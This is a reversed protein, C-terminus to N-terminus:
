EFKINLVKIAENIPIAFGLGEVDEGIIKRVIIGVVEGKLNILAGGSNGKNISVDTQIFNQEEFVRKGSIIGKTISQGLNIDRPTGIAIVETGVTNKNKDKNIAFPCFGDGVIKLLAVDRKEDYAVVKVPLKLDGSFIAEIEDADNIVHYNTLAYGDSSIIFGSGHGYETKVTISSKISNKIMEGYNEISRTKIKTLLYGEKDTFNDSDNDKAINKFGENNILSQTADTLALALEDKFKNKSKTNSYGATNVEYIVKEKFVDFISWRVWVSVKFGPTGKTEKAYTLIEGAIALDPIEQKEKFVSNGEEIVNYGWKKMQSIFSESFIKDEFNIGESVGSYYFVTYYTDTTLKGTPDIYKTFAIKKSRIKEKPISIKDLKINIEPKNKDILDQATISKTIYGEKYIIVVEDPKKESVKIKQGVTNGNKIFDGIQTQVEVTQSLTNKAYFCTLLILLITVNKM